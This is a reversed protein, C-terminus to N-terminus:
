GSDRSETDKSFDMQTM